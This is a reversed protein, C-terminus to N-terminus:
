TGEGGGAVTDLEAVVGDAVIAEWEHAMGATRGFPVPADFCKRYGKPLPEMSSRALGDTTSPAAITECWLAWSDSFDANVELTYCRVSGYVQAGAAGLCDFCQHKVRWQAQRLRELNFAALADVGHRSNLLDIDNQSLTM